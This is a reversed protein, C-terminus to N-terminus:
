SRNPIKQLSEFICTHMCISRWLRLFFNPFLALAGLSKQLSESIYNLLARDKCARAFSKRTLISTVALVKKQESLLIPKCLPYCITLAPQKLKRLLNDVPVM